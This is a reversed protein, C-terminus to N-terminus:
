LSGCSPCLPLAFRLSLRYGSLTKWVPQISIHPWLAADLIPSYEDVHGKFWAAGPYLDIGGDAFTREVADILADRDAPNM